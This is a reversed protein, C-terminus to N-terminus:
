GEGRRAVPRREAHSHHDSPPCQCAQACKNLGEKVALFMQHRCRPHLPMDPLDNPLICLCKVETKAFFEEAYKCIYHSLRRVTDNRPSVSWVIEDFARHTLRAAGAMEEVERRLAPNDKATKPRWTAWCRL